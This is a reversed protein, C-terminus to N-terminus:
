QSDAQEFMTRGDYAPIRPVEMPTARLYGDDGHVAGGNMSSHLMASVTRRSAKITGDQRLYNCVQCTFRFLGTGYKKMASWLRDPSANFPYLMDGDEGSLRPGYLTTLLVHCDPCRPGKDGADHAKKCEADWDHLLCPHLRRPFTDAAAARRRSAGSM